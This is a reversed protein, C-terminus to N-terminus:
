RRRQGGLLGGGGTSRVVCDGDGDSAVSRVGTLPSDGKITREVDIAMDEQLLAKPHFSATWDIYDGFGSSCGKGHIWPSVCSRLFASIDGTTNATVGNIGASSDTKTDCTQRSDPEDGHIDVLHIYPDTKSEGSVATSIAANLATELTDFQTVVSSSLGLYWTSPVVTVGRVAPLTWGPTVPCFSPVAGTPLLQPYNLVEIITGPATDAIIRTYYSALASSLTKLTSEADAIKAQCSSTPDVPLNIASLDLIKSEIRMCEEFASSFPLDDGGATVTVFKTATKSLSDLENPEGNHLKQQNVTRAGSCAAFGGQYAEFGPVNVKLSTAVHVPYAGPARHCGDAGSPSLYDNPDTELGEGSSYSDGLAVYAHFSSSSSTVKPATASATGGLGVILMVLASSVVPITQRLHRKM